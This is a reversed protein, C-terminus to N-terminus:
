RRKEKPYCYYPYFEEYTNKDPKYVHFKIRNKMTLSLDWLATAFLIDSENKVVGNDEDWGSPPSNRPHSHNFERINYGFRLQRYILAGASTDKDFVHSSSIFNLGDKGEKGTKIHGWEVKINQALFEFMQKGNEDGRVKFYDFEGHESWNVNTRFDIITGPKFSIKEDVGEIQIIDEETDIQEIVYGVKNFVYTRMGTPDIANAPNAGCHATPSIGPYDTWKEDYSGYRMLLPDHMRATNDYWDLGSHSLWRNGIHLRDSVPTLENAGGSNYDCPLVYPTGSAYYGNRQVAEGESDVVACTESMANGRGTAKQNDEASCYINGFIAFTLLLFLDKKMLRDIRFTFKM